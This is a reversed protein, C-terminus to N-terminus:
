FKLQFCFDNTIRMKYYAYYGDTRIYEFFVTDKRMNDIEIIIDNTDLDIFSIKIVRENPNPPEIDKGGLGADITFSVSGGKMIEFDQRFGLFPPIETIIIQLNYSSENIVEIKSYASYDVCNLSILVFFCIVCWKLTKM